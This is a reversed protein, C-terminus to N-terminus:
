TRQCYRHRNKAPTKKTTTKNNNNPINSKEKKKNKKILVVALATTAKGRQTASLRETPINHNRGLRRALDKHSVTQPLYM